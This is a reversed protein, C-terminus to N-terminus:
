NNFRLDRDLDNIGYFGPIECPFNLGQSKFFELAERTFFTYHGCGFIKQPPKESEKKSAIVWHRNNETCSNSEPSFRSFSTWLRHIQAPWIFDAKEIMNRFDLADPKEGDLGIEHYSWSYNPCLERLKVLPNEGFEYKTCIYVHILELLESWDIFISERGGFLQELDSNERELNEVLMQIVGETM